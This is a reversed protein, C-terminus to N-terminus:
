KQKSAACDHCEEETVYIVDDFIDMFHDFIDERTSDIDDKFDELAHFFYQIRAELPAVPDAQETKKNKFGDMFQQIEDNIQALTESQLIDTLDFDQKSSHTPM